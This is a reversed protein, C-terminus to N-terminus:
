YKKNNNNYGIINSANHKQTEFCKIIEKKIEEKVWQNNLTYHKVEM